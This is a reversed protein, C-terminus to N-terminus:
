CPLIITFEGVDIEWREILYSIDNLTIVKHLFDIFHKIENDVGSSYVDRLAKVITFKNKVGLLENIYKVMDSVKNSPFYDYTDFQELVELRANRRVEDSLGLENLYLEWGQEM